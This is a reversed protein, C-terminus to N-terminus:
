VHSLRREVAVSFHEEHGLESYIGDSIEMLTVM